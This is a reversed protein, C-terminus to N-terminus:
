ERQRRHRALWLAGLGLSAAILLLPWSPVGLAALRTIRAARGNQYWIMMRVPGNVTQLISHDYDSALYFPSPAWINVIITHGPAVPMNVTAGGPPGWQVGAWLGAFALMLLLAGGILLSSGHRRPKVVWGM